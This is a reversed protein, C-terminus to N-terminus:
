CGFLRVCFCLLGWVYRVLSKALIELGDERRLEEANLASCKVTRYGLECAGALLAPGDAGAFLQESDTERQITVLLM